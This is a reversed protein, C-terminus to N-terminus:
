GFGHNVLIFSKHFTEIHKQILRFRVKEKEIHYPSASLNIFLTAGKDSLIQVPNDPYIKPPRLRPDNWADECITIGLREGKFDFSEIQPAPDFYRAEDFVDYNPLLTKHQEFRISGNQILVASNYLGNGIKKQTPRITGCLIATAPHRESIKKIEDLANQADQIFDKRNLLDRPPYGTLYLESLVILDSRDRHAKKYLTDIKQLNGSFDGITPNLQALTIKM